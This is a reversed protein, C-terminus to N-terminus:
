LLVIHARHYLYSARDRSVDTIGQTIFQGLGTLLQKM